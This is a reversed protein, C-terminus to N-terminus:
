EVSSISSSRRVPTTRVWRRVTQGGFPALIVARTCRATFGRPLRHWGLRDLVPHIFESETEAESPIGMDALAQWHPGIEAAFAAVQALGLARYRDQQRVGEELWYSTLLGGRIM